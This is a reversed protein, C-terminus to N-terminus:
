TNEEDDPYFRRSKLGGVINVVKNVAVILEKTLNYLNNLYYNAARANIVPSGDARTQTALTNFKKTAQNYDVGIRSIVATLDNIQNRLRRDTMKVDKRIVIRKNLVRDRVYHAQSLYGDKKMQNRFAVYEKETFRITIRKTRNDKGITKM